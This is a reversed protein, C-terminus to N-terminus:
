APIGPRWAPMTGAPAPPRVPGEPRTLATTLALVAAAQASAQGGFFMALATLGALLALVLLAKIAAGALSRWFAARNADAHRGGV